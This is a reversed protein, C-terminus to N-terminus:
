ALWARKLRSIGAARFGRSQVYTEYCCFRGVTISAGAPDSRIEPRHNRREDIGSVPYRKKCVGFLGPVEAKLVPAYRNMVKPQRCGM